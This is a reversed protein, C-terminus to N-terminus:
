TLKIKPDNRVEADIEIELSFRKKKFMIQERDTKSFLASDIKNLIVLHNQKISGNMRTLGNWHLSLFYLLSIRLLEKISYFNKGIRKRKTSTPKERIDKKSLRGHVIKSRLEYVEKAYAQFEKREDKREPGNGLLVAVRNAFKYSLEQEQELYLAELGIIFDLAAMEDNGNAEKFCGELFYEMAIHLKNSPEEKLLLPYIDKKFGILKKSEDGTLWYHHRPSEKGWDIYKNMDINASIHKTLYQADESTWRFFGISTVVPVSAPKFLNLLLIVRKFHDLGLDYFKWPEDLPILTKRDEKVNKNIERLVIFYPKKIYEYEIFQNPTIDPFCDKIKIWDIQEISFDELDIKDNKVLLFNPILGLCLYKDIEEKAM